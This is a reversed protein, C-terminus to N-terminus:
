HKIKQINYNDVKNQIPKYKKNTLRYLSEIEDIHIQVEQQERTLQLINKNKSQEIQVAIFRTKAIIDKFDDLKGMIKKIEKDRWKIEEIKENIINTAETKLKKNKTRWYRDRSKKSKKYGQEFAENIARSKSKFYKFM